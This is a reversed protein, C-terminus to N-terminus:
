PLVHRQQSHTESAASPVPHVHPSSCPNVRAIRGVRASHVSSAGVNAGPPASQTGSSRAPSHTHHTRAPSHPHHAARQHSAARTANGNQTVSAGTYVHVTSGSGSSHRSHSAGNTPAARTHQTAHLRGRGVTPSGSNSRRSGVNPSRHASNRTRSPSPMPVVGSDSTEGAAGRRRRSMSVSASAAGAAVAVGSPPTPPDVLAGHDDLCGVSGAKSKSTCNVLNLLALRLLYPSRCKRVLQVAEDTRLRPAIQHVLNLADHIPLEKVLVQAPVFGLEVAVRFPQVCTVVVRAHRTHRLLLRVMDSALGTTGDDLVILCEWNHIIRGHASVFHAFSHPAASLSRHMRSYKWFIDGRHDM